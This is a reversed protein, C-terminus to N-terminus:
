VDWTTIAPNRFWWCYSREFYHNKNEFALWPGDNALWMVALCCFFRELLYWKNHLPLISFAVKPCCSWFSKPVFGDTLTQTHNGGHKEFFVRSGYGMTTWIFTIGHDSLVEWIRPLIHIYIYVCVSKVLRWIIYQFWHSVGKQSPIRQLRIRVGLGGSCVDMGTQPPSTTGPFSHLFFVVHPHKWFYPSFGWIM